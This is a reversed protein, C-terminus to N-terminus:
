LQLIEKPKWLGTNLWGMLLLPRAKNKKNTKIKALSENENNTAKSYKTRYVDSTDTRM